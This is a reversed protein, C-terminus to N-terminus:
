GSRESKPNGSLPKQPVCVQEKYESQTSAADANVLTAPIKPYPHLLPLTPYLFPPHHTSTSM